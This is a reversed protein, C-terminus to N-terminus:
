EFEAKLDKVAKFLDARRKIGYIAFGVTAGTIALQVRWDLGGMFEGAASVVSGIGALAWTWVTKSKGPPTELEGPDAVVPKEVIIPDPEPSPKVSNGAAKVRGLVVEVTEPKVLAKNVGDGAYYSQGRKLTRHAGKGGRLVPFSAWEMALRRGFEVKGITGAMFGAYGRRQLLHYGLRDQLDPDLLQTGRLGLEEKLGTLTARMLQYGGTASSGFRKSWNRQATIVEDVTMSTVPTPLKGQNHGFIIDYSARDERGVETKRIFDLLIAAGAPVTRDM